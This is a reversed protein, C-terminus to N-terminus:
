AAARRNLFGILSMGFHILMGVVVMGCSIYPLTWGPNRVVQLVTGTNGPLYGSQYFTEGQYRLPDNMSILVERDENRSEDTLRVQSSFNKPKETGLYLEHKFEHLHITYPKYDRKLRLEVTYTKGDVTLRQPVFLIQRQLFNPYHWLSLLYTGLSEGTDKNKFAVRVSVADERQNPDVGTEEGRHVVRHWGGRGRSDVAFLADKMDEGGRRVEILDSNKMYELVEINVPLLDSQILGGRRLKSGPVVVEDDTEPDSPDTIALEVERSEDVYNVSEGQALTMKAEVAYLGTILESVMMVVIGTHLLLIGTRKVLVKMTLKRVLALNVFWLFHAALLNVLLASGLLWGGPFPFGGPVKFSRPFFVQFPIWVFFSRFYKEVVTWIGQDIQAVTGAFVLVLSLVFLVVTIKLSALAELGKYLLRGVTLPRPRPAPTPSSLVPSGKPISTQIATENM